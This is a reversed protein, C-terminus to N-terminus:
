YRILYCRHPLVNSSLLSLHLVPPLLRIHRLRMCPVATSLRRVKSVDQPSVRAWLKQQADLAQQISM